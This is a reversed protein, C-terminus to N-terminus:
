QAANCSQLVHDWAFCIQHHCRVAMTAEIAVAMDVNMGMVALTEQGAVEM